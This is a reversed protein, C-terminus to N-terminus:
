VDPASAVLVLGIGYPVFGVSQATAISAHNGRDCDYNAEGGDHTVHEVVASVATQAYGRRRYLQATDVGLDAVRGEMVATRHAFAVSVACGDAIVAYVIGDPFCQQPLSIGQAPLISEDVLRRCDGHMHRRLLGANCAFSAVLGHRHVPGLGVRELGANVAPKLSEALEPRVLDEPSSVERSLRRATDGAGPAVSIASRGDPLWLWWLARINGYGPERRLRRDSEVVRSCGPPLSAIDLGMRISRYENVAPFNFAAEGMM